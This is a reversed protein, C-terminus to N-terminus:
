ASPATGAHPDPGARWADVTMVVLAPVYQVGRLTMSVDGDGALYSLPVLGAFLLWGRSRYIAAFPLVWLVYWPHMTPLLVIVGALTLYTERAPDIKKRFAVFVVWFLIALAAVARALHQPWVHRYLWDWPLADEGLRSKLWTIADKCGPTPDITEIGVLVGYFVFSNREWREAYDFLGAGIAPGTLALPLALAVGVGVFVGIERLRWRRVYSPLLFIPLLKAHIAAALAAASRAPRNTLLWWVALLVAVVGLPEYHGSGATEMVALPNWAYLVIRATPLRLRRVIPILALVVGFDLLGAALKFGAPGAGLAALLAFLYQALPPYITRLEPHNIEPWVEDRLPELAPDDPAYRYPHVGQIQVRGDWVYRYVDDSLAPGGLSAVLRFLLAAGLAIRLERDGGKRVLLWGALMLGLLALHCGLFLPIHVTLDGTAALAVYSFASILGAALIGVLRTRNDM